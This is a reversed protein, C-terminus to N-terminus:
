WGDVKKAYLACLVNAYGIDDGVPLDTCSLFITLVLPMEAFSPPSIVGDMCDTNAMATTSANSAKERRRSRQQRQEKEGSNYRANAVIEVLSVGKV